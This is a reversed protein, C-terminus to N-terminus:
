WASEICLRRDELCDMVDGEWLRLVGGGYEDDEGDSSELKRWKGQTQLAVTSCLLDFDLVSIGELEALMEREEVAAGGGGEVGIDGIVTAGGSELKGSDAM